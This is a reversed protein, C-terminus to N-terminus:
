DRYEEARKQSSPFPKSVSWKSIISRIRDLVTNRLMILCYCQTIRAMFNELILLRNVFVFLYELVLSIIGVIVAVM